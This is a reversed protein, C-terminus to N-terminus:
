PNDHETYAGLDERGATYCVGTRTCLFFTRSVKEDGRGHLSGVLRGSARDVAYIAIRSNGTDAVLLRGQPDFAVDHPASVEGQAFVGLEKLSRADLVAIRDNDNDAVYLLRGDPSLVIDHPKAYTEASAARMEFALSNASAVPPMSWAILVLLWVIAPSAM